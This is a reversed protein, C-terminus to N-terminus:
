DGDTVRYRRHAGLDEVMQYTRGKWPWVEKLTNRRFRKVDVIEDHENIFTVVIFPSGERVLSPRHARLRQTRVIRARAWEIALGAVLAGLLLFWFM